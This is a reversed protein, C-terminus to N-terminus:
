KLTFRAVDVKFHPKLDVPQDNYTVHVNPANGVTLEFPPVGDIVKETGAANLQELLTEGNRAKVQVWADKAFRIVIRGKGPAVPSLATPATSTTGEVPLKEDIRASPEAVRTEAVRGPAASAFTDPKSERLATAAAAKPAAAANDAATDQSAGVFALQPSGRNQLWEIAFFAVVALLVVSLVAYILNVHKGGESFPIPRRLSVAEEPRVQPGFGSAGLQALLPAPDIKLLRAYNRIMGRAFTTGPLADFRGAELAEIQRPSFKLQNAIDEITIGLEARRAPLVDTAPGTTPTTIASTALTDHSGAPGQTERLDSM